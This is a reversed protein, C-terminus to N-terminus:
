IRLEGSGMWDRALAGTLAASSLRLTQTRAVQEISNWPGPKPRAWSWGEPVNPTHVLLHNKRTKEVGGRGGVAEGM